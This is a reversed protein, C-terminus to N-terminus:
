PDLEAEVAILEPADRRTFHAQPHFTCDPPGATLVIFASPTSPM